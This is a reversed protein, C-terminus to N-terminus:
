SVALRLDTEQAFFDSCLLSSLAPPPVAGKRNVKSKKILQLQHLRQDAARAKRQVREEQARLANLRNRMIAADAEAQRRQFYRYPFHVRVSFSVEDRALFRAVVCRFDNPFIPFSAASFCTLLFRTDRRSINARRKLSRSCPDEEFDPLCPWSRHFFTLLGCNFWWEVGTRERRGFLVSVRRQAGNNQRRRRRDMPQQVQKMRYACHVSLTPARDTLCRPPSFSFCFPKSDCSLACVAYLTNLVPTSIPMIPRQPIYTSFGNIAKKNRSRRSVSGDHEAGGFSRETVDGLSSVDGAPQSLPQSQSLAGASAM